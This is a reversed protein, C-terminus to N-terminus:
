HPAEPSQRGGGVGGKWHNQGPGKGDYFDVYGIGNEDSAGATVVPEGNDASLQLHAGRKEGDVASNARLEVRVGGNGDLLTLRAHDDRTFFAAREEGEANVLVFREAKLTKEGEPADAGLLLAAAPLGMLLLKMRRSQKELQYIRQELAAEREHQRM